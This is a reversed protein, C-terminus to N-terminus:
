RKKTPRVFRFLADDLAVGHQINDLTVITAEGESNEAIFQYLELPQTRFVFGLTGMEGDEQKVIIKLLGGELSQHIIETDDDDLHIEPKAIIAALTEDLSLYSVEDMDSDYYILTDGDSVMQIRSPHAYNWRMKGPRKLLLEGSGVSGDPAIQQFDARLTTIANLYTEAQQIAPTQAYAESFGIPFRSDPIPLRFPICCLGFVLVGFVSVRIGFGARVRVRSYKANALMTPRM